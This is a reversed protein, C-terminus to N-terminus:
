KVPDITEISGDAQHSLKTMKINRLHTKGSLQTDHYFIYWEGDVEVISHHNTWGDVPNLVVGQYTFPGYPSDSTAYAIFHTDGTSYSLYYTGKYKHVWAAEFFRRENDGNLIPDGNQDLIMVEKPTEAFELMDESMKAIIPGLAPEDDSPLGDTPAPGKDDFKNARYKQLQGGWIGGFYMYYSGDTDEYVAPDISYSGKIAEPQATFPGTPSDGVAVGIKFIDNEDKAPFYLYYKGDKEAADPAWLQRKAWPIDDVGLVKGADVIPSTPSDMSYVHYDMMNFHAGLDDEPVDSEVDHSPYIYIKGDFVHASPDATYHDTILPQSLYKSATSDIVEVETAATDTSETSKGCSALLTVAVLAPLSYILNKM